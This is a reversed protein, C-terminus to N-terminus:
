VVAKAMSISLFAPNSFEFDLPICFKNDFISAVTQDKANNAKDGTNIRHKM